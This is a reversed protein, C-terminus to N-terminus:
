EFKSRNIIRIFYSYYPGGGVTSKLGPPSLAWLGISASIKRQMYIMQMIPNAIQKAIKEVIFDLM